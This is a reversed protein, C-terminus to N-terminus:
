ISHKREQAPLALNRASFKDRLRKFLAFQMREDIVNNEIVDDLEDNKYAEILREIEEPRKRNVYCETLEFGMELLVEVIVADSVRDIIKRAPKTCGQKLIKRAEEILAETSPKVRVNISGSRKEERNKM